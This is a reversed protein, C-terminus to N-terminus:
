DTHASDGAHPTRAQRHKLLRVFGVMNEIIERADEDTLRERYYPQWVDIIENLLGRSYRTRPESQEVKGTNELPIPDSWHREPKSKRRRM